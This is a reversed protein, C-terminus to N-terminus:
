IFARQSLNNIGLWRHYKETDRVSLTLSWNECIALRTCAQFLPTAMFFVPEESITSKTGINIQSNYYKIVLFYFVVYWFYRVLLVVDSVDQYKIIIVTLINIM